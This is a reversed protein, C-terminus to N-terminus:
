TDEPKEPPSRSGAVGTPDRRLIGTGRTYGAGRAYRIWPAKMPDEVLVLWARSFGEAAGTFMAVFDCGGLTYRVSERLM